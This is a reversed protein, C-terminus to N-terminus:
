IFTKKLTTFSSYIQCGARPLNQDVYGQAALLPWNEALRLSPIFFVLKGISTRDLFNLLYLVAMWPILMWDVKRILRREDIGSVDIHPNYLTTKMVQDDGLEASLGSEKESLQDQRLPSNM